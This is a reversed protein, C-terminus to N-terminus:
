EKRPGSVFAHVIGRREALTWLGAGCAAAGALLLAWATGQWETDLRLGFGVMLLLFGVPRWVEDRLRM